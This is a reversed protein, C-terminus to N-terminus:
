KIAYIKMYKLMSRMNRTFNGKFVPFNEIKELISAFQCTNEYFLEDFKGTWESTEGSRRNECLKIFDASLIHAYIEGIRVRLFWM